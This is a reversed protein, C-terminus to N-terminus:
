ETNAPLVFEGPAPEAAWPTAHWVAYLGKVGRSGGQAKRARTDNERVWGRAVVAAVAAAAMAAEQKADMSRGGWGPRLVDAIAKAFLRTGKRASAPSFPAAAGRDDRTGCAICTVVARLTSLDFEHGTAVPAWPEVTQVTDGEPYDPTGNNIPVGVLTFWRRAGAPALNVKADNISIHRWADWPLVGYTQCEVPTMRVLRLGVRAKNIISAAGMAAEADTDDRAGKREHHLVLMAVKLRSAMEQLKGMVATMCGNDNVGAPCFGLLPDLVVVGPKHRQILGDLRAFGDADIRKKSGEDRNLHLGGPHLKALDDMGLMALRDGFAADHHTEAAVVRRWMEDSDDDQSLFLVKRPSGYVKSGLVPKAALSLAMAVAVASKGFSGPAVLVSVHGIVKLVEEMGNSRGNYPKDGRSGVGFLYSGWGEPRAGIERGIIDAATASLPVVHTRGQKMTAAPITWTRATLNIESIRMRCVEGGRQGTLLMIQLMTGWVSGTVKMLAAIEADTLVRERAAVPKPPRIDRCPNHDILDRDQCWRLFHSVYSFVKRRAAPKRAYDDLLRAVDARTISSVVRKKWGELAQGLASRKDAITRPRNDTLTDLYQALLEAM